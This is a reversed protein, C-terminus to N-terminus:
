PEVRERFERDWEERLESIEKKIDKGKWIEKDIEYLESLTTKPKLLICKKERMVILKSGEDIKLEKIIKAPLTM